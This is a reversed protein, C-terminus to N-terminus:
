RPLDGIRINGPQVVIFRGAIAKKHQCVLQVVTRAMHRRMHPPYRLYVVGTSHRRDAYVLQGFDKDETHPVSCRRIALRVIDADAAGPAIDAVRDVTFGADRLTRVFIIDCSEDAIFRPATM